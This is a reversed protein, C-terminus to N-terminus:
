LIWLFTRACMCTFTCTRAYTCVNKKKKFRVNPGSGHVATPHCEGGNGMQARHSSFPGSSCHKHNVIAGNFSATSRRRGLCYFMFCIEGERAGRNFFRPARKVLEYKLTSITFSTAQHSIASLWGHWVFLENIDGLDTCPFPSAPSLLLPPWFMEM